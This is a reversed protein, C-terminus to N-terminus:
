HLNSLAMLSSKALDAQMLLVSRGDPSVTMGRYTPSPQVSLDMVQRIAGAASSFLQVGGFRSLFYLGEHSKDWNRGAVNAMESVFREQGGEIPMRWFGYKANRKTYYLFRGDSSEFAEFGGNQTVQVPGGGTAPVKWIQFESGSRDSSFYIWRGDRSWTPVITGPGAVRETHGSLLDLV